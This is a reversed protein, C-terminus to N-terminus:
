VIFIFFVNLVIVVALTRFCSGFVYVVLFFVMVICFTDMKLTVVCVTVAQPCEGSVKDEEMGHLAEQLLNVEKSM